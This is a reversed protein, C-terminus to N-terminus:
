KFFERSKFQSEPTSRQVSYVLPVILSLASLREYRTIASSKMEQKHPLLNLWKFIVNIHEGDLLPSKRNLM